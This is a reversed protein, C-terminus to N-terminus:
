QTSKGWAKSAKESMSAASESDILRLPVVKSRGTINRGSMRRTLRVVKVGYGCKVFILICVQLLLVGCNMAIIGVGLPGRIFYTEKQDLFLVLGGMTTLVLALSSVFISVDDPDSEFPATKLVILLFTLMILIACIMQVPTGPAIISLMGTMFMKTLIVM